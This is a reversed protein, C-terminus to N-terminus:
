RGEKRLEELLRKCVGIAEGDILGRGDKRSVTVIYDTPLNNPVIGIKKFALKIM